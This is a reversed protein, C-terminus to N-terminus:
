NDCVTPDFWTFGAIEEDTIGENKMVNALIDRTVKGGECIEKLKQSDEVGRSRLFTRVRSIVIDYRGELEHRTKEKNLVLKDIGNTTYKMAIMIMGYLIGMYRLMSSDKLDRQLLSRPLDKTYAGAMNIALHIHGLANELEIPNIKQSSNVRTFYDMSIYVEINTIFDVLVTLLGTLINVCMSISDYSDIQSTFTTRTLNFESVFEDSFKDWDIFPYAIKLDMHNGITGGFKATFIHHDLEYCWKSLRSIHYDLFSTFKIPVAPQAHTRALINYPSRSKLKKICQITHEISTVLCKTAFQLNYSYAVSNIDQSTLGIHILHNYNQKPCIKNLYERLFYEIAKVDHRTIKEIEKIRTFDKHTFEIYNKPLDIDVGIEGCLKSLYKLEVIVRQKIYSFESFYPKLEAVYDSYRGDLPSLPYLSEDVSVEDKKVIMEVRSAGTNIYKVPVGLYTEIFQIYIKINPHLDEFKEASM